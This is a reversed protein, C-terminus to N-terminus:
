RPAVDMVWIDALDDQWPFYLFRGDTSSQMIGLTGRKGVFHTM